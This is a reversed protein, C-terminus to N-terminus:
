QWVQPKLRDLAVSRPDVAIESYPPGVHSRRLNLFKTHADGRYRFDADAMVTITFLLDVMMLCRPKSGSVLKAFHGFGLRRRISLIAM